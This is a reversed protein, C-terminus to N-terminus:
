GQLTMLNYGFKFSFELQKDNMKVFQFIHNAMAWDLFCSTSYLYMFHECILFSHEFM